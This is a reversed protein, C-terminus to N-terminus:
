PNPNNSDSWAAVGRRRRCPHIGSFQPAYGMTKKTGEGDHLHDKQDVLNETREEAAGSQWTGGEERAVFGRRSNGQKPIKQPHQRM